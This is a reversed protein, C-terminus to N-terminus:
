VRIGLRGLLLLMLLYAVVTAGCAVALALPFGVQWRVVLAPMLAFLVLSPLVLWFIGTSLHAVRKADHTDYYLWMMALLSTVPLSALVAGFLTSRKSLESIGYILLASIFIKLIPQM